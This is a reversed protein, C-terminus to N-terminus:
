RAVHLTPERPLSLTFTTTAASADSLELRGGHLEAIWRAISLGLGSGANRGNGHHTRAADARFFRDFVQPRAEAPIGPGGNSVDLAIGDGLITVRDSVTGGDDSYKIANDLLNIVLRQLLSDDGVVLLRM